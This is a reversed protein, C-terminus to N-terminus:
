RPCKTSRHYERAWILAVAARLVHTAAPCAWELGLRAFSASGIAAWGAKNLRPSKPHSLPLFALPKTRLVGERSAGEIGM